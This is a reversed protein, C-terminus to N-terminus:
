TQEEADTTKTNQEFLHSYRHHYIGLPNIHKEGVREREIELFAQFAPNSAKPAMEWSLAARLKEILDASRPELALSGAPGDTTTLQGQMNM